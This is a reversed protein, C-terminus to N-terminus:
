VAPEGSARGDGGVDAAASPGKNEIGFVYQFISNPLANTTNTYKDASLDAEATLEVAAPATAFRGGDSTAAFTAASLPAAFLCLVLLFLVAPRSL